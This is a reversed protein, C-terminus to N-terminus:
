GGLKAHLAQLHAAAGADVEKTSNAMTALGAAAEGLQDVHSGLAELAHGLVANYLAGFMSGQEDAGWPNGTTVTSQLANVQNALDEACAAMARASDMLQDPNIRTPKM